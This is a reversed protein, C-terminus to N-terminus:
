KRKIVSKSRSVTEPSPTNCLRELPTILKLLKREFLTHPVSVNSAHFSLNSFISKTLKFTMTIIVRIKSKLYRYTSNQIISQLLSKLSIKEQVSLGYSQFRFITSVTFLHSHKEWHSENLEKRITESYLLAGLFNQRCFICSKM